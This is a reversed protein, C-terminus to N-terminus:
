NRLTLGIAWHFDTKKRGPIVVSEYTHDVVLSLALMKGISYAFTSLSSWRMNRENLAPQIFMSTSWLFKNFSAGVRIRTSNRIVRVDEANLFDTFESILANTVSLRLHKDPRQRGGIIRWGFGGGGFWRAGIQRLNSEEHVGFAMLYFDHRNYWLTANLDVFLEREQLEGGITGYTYRPSTYFGVPSKASQFDLSTVITYLARQVNGSRYDGGLMVSYTLKKTSDVSRTMQVLDPFNEAGRPLTDAPAPRTSDSQFPHSFAATVSCCLLIVLYKM